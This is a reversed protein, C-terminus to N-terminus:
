SRKRFFLVFNVILIIGLLVILVPVINLKKPAFIEKGADGVRIIIEHVDKPAEGKFEGEPLYRVIIQERYEGPPTKLPM